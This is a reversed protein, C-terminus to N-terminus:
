HVENLGTAVRIAQPDGALQSRPPPSSEGLREELSHILTDFIKKRSYWRSTAEVITWPAFESETREFMEEAALSYDDYQKHRLWDEKTVRWSELTTVIRMSKANIEQIDPAPREVPCRHAITSAASSNATSTATAIRKEDKEVGKRAEM